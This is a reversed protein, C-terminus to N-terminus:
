LKRLSAMAEYLSVFEETAVIQNGELVFYGTELLKLKPDNPSKILVMEEMLIDAVVFSLTHGIEIISRVVTACKLRESFRILEDASSPLVTNLVKMLNEDTLPLKSM